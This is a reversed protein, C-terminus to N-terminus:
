ASISKPAVMQVARFGFHSAQGIVREQVDKGRNDLDQDDNDSRHDFFAARKEDRSPLLADMEGAQPLKGAALDVLPFRMLCSQGALNALLQVRLDVDALQDEIHRM